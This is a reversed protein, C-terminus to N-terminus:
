SLMPLGRRRAGTAMDEIDTVMTLDTIGAMTDLAMDMPVIGLMLMQMLMPILLLQQSQRLKERRGEGTDAMTLDTPVMAMIDVMDIALVMAMAMGPMLMQMLKLSLM